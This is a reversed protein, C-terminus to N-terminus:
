RVSFENIYEKIEAKYSRSLPVTIGNDLFITNESVKVLELYRTNFLFSRHCQLFSDPLEEKVKELSVYKSYERDKMRFYVKKGRVEIYYIQDARIRVKGQRSEILIYAGEQSTDKQRFYEKVFMRVTQHLMEKDFPRLLLSCARIEPTMYTMPSLDKSALLMLLAEEKKARLEKSMKIEEDRGIELVAMDVPEDAEILEIADPVNMFDDITLEADSLFAVNDKIQNRIAEQEKKIRNYLLVYEM